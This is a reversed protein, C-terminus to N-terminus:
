QTVLDTILVRQATPVGAAKIRELLEGRMKDSAAPDLAEEFSTTRYDAFAREALALKAEVQEDSDPEFVKETEGTTPNITAIPM